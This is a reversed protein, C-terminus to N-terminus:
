KTADAKDAGSATQANAKDSSSASQADAKECPDKPKHESYSQATKADFMVADESPLPYGSLIYSASDLDWDSMRAIDDALIRNHWGIRKRTMDQLDFYDVGRPDNVDVGQIVCEKRAEDIRIIVKQPEGLAETVGSSFVVGKKAVRMWPQGEDIDLYEFGELLDDM